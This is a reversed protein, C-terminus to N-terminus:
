AAAQAASTITKGPTRKMAAFTVPAAFTRSTAFVNV